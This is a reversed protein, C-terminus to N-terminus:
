KQKWRDRDELGITVKGSNQRLYQNLANEDTFGKAKMIIARFGEGGDNVANEAAASLAIFIEHLPHQPDRAYQVHEYKSGLVEGVGIDDFQVNWVQKDNTPNRFVDGLSYNDQIGPITQDPLPWLQDTKEYNSTFNVFFKVYPDSIKESINASVGIVSYVRLGDENIHGIGATKSGSEMIYSSGYLPDYGPQTGYSSDFKSKVENTLQNFFTNLAVAAPDRLTYYSIPAM